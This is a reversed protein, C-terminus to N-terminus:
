AHLRRFRSEAQFKDLVLRDPADTARLSAYQRARNAFDFERAMGLITSRSFESRPSAVVGRRLYGGCDYEYLVDWARLDCPLMVFWTVVLPPISSRAKAAAMSLTRPRRPPELNAEPANSELRTRWAYTAEPVLLWMYDRM